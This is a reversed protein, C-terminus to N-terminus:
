FVNRGANVHVQRLRNKRSQGMGQSINELEKKIKKRSTKHERKNTELKSEQKKKILNGKIDAEEIM